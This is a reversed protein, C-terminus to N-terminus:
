GKKISWLKLTTDRSGTVILSGDLSFHLTTILDSHGELVFENAMSKLNWVKLYNKTVSAITETENSYAITGKQPLRFVVSRYSRIDWVRLTKDDAITVLSTGDKSYRVTRIVDAHAEINKLEKGTETNIIILSNGCGLAVNRGDNSLGASLVTYESEIKREFVSMNDLRTLDVQCNIFQGKYLIANTLNTTRFSCNYFVGSSLDAEPIEVDDLNVNTFIHGIKTLLTIANSAQENTNPLRKTQYVVDLLKSHTREVSYHEKILNLLQRDNYLQNMRMFKYGKELYYCYGEVLFFHLYQNHLFLPRDRKMGAEIDVPYFSLQNSVIQETSYKDIINRIPENVERNSHYYEFAMKRLDHLPEKVKIQMAKIERYHRKWCLGFVEKLLTYKNLSYLLCSRFDDLDEQHSLYICYIHLYFPNQLFSIYKYKPHADTFATTEIGVLEDVFNKKDSYNHFQISKMLYDRIEEIDLPLMGCEVVKVGFAIFRNRFRHTEGSTAMCFSIEPRSRPDDKDYIM